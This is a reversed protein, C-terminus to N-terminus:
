SSVKAGRTVAPTTQGYHFGRSAGFNTLTPVAESPVHGPAHPRVSTPQMKRSKKNASAELDAMPKKHTRSRISRGRKTCLRHGIYGIMAILAALAVVIGVCGVIDVVM